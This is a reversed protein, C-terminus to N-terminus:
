VNNTLIFMVNVSLASFDHLITYEFYNSTVIGKAFLVHCHRTKWFCVSCTCNLKQSIPCILHIFVKLRLNGWRSKDLRVVICVRLGRNQVRRYFCVSRSCYCLCGVKGHTLKLTSVFPILYCNQFILVASPAFLCTFGSSARNINGVTSLCIPGHIRM